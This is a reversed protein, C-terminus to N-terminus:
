VTQKNLPRLCSYRKVIVVKSHNVLVYTHNSRGHIMLISSGHRRIYNDKYIFLANIVCIRPQIHL